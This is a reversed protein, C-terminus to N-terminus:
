LKRWTSWVGHRLFCCCHCLYLQVILPVSQAYNGAIINPMM